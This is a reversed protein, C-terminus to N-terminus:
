DLAYIATRSNEYVLPLGSPPDVVEGSLVHEKATRRYVLYSVGQARAVEPASAVFRTVDGENGKYLIRFPVVLSCARRGTYLYVIPDADALLTRGPPVRAKIWEYTRRTEGVESRWQQMFPPFHCNMSTWSLGCLLAVFGLAALAPAAALASLGSGSSVRAVLRRWAQAFEAVVGTLLLPLLPFTLRQVREHNGMAWPLLLAVSLAAFLHYPHLGRRVALRIVSFLAAAALLSLFLNGELAGVGRPSVFITGIGPFYEQINRWIILPTESASFNAFHYGTYDTYYLLIPDANGSLHARGWLTWGAVAMVMLGFFLGAAAFRRRWLLWLPAAILLPIAANRTLYAAAGLTGAAAAVWWRSEPQGARLVLLFCGFLVCCFPLESMLSVSYLIVLPNLALLVCVVTGERRSVGLSPLLRWVLVLYVPLFAWSLATALPLNDPFRPNAMWVLSLALPYLPPYKTQFPEGPLSLIRYGAGQALSKACVWYISDDHVSGLHPMDRSYFAILASPIVAVVLIAFAVHRSM